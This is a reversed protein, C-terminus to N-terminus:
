PAEQPQIPTWQIDLSEHRAFGELHTTVVWELRDLAARTDAEGHLVLLGDSARMMCVGFPFDARGYDDTYTAPVKHAFHKCLRKIYRSPTATKVHSESIYVPM